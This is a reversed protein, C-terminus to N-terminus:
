LMAMRQCQVNLKDVLEELDKLMPRFDTEREKSAIYEQVKFYEQEVTRLRQQGKELTLYMENEQLQTRKAEFKTYRDKAASILADKRAALSIKERELDAKTEEAERKLLHSDNFREIDSNMGSM